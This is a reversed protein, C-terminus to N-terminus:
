WGPAWPDQGGDQVAAEIGTLEDALTIRGAGNVTRHYRFMQM